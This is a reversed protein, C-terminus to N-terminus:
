AVARAATSSLVRILRAARRLYLAIKSASRFIPEASASGTTRAIHAPLAGALCFLGAEGGGFFPPFGAVGAAGVASAAPPPSLPVFASSSMRVFVNAILAYGNTARSSAAAFSSTLIASPLTACGAPTSRWCHFASRCSAAVANARRDVFGFSTSTSIRWACTWNSAAAFCCSMTTLSFGFNSAASAASFCAILSSVSVFAAHIRAM